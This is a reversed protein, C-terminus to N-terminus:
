GSQDNESGLERLERSAANVEDWGYIGYQKQEEGEYLEHWFHVRSGFHKKAIQHAARIYPEAPTTLRGSIKSSFRLFYNCWEPSSPMNPCEGIMLQILNKQSYKSSNPLDLIKGDDRRGEDDYVDQYTEIIEDLFQQYVQKNETTVELKPSIDFGCDYGMKTLIQKIFM